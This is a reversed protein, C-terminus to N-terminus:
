FIFQIILCIVGFIMLSIQSVYFMIDKFINPPKTSIAHPGNLIENYTSSIYTSQAKSADGVENNINCNESMLQERIEPTPHKVRYYVINVVLPIFYILVLGTSAGIISM